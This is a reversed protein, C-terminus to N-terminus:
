AAEAIQALRELALRTRRDLPRQNLLRVANRGIELAEALQTLTWPPQREACWRALPGDTPAPGPM